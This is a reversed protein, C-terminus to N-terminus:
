PNQYVYVEMAGLGYKQYDADYFRINSYRGLLYELEMKLVGEGVGHIFVIRQIRNRIAFELKHRATDLQLNLIEHNSMGKSSRILQNVHLDVEMPPQQKDKSRAPRSKPKKVPKKEKLVEEFDFGEITAPDIDDDIKVLQDAPFSMIFGDETKISIEDGNIEQVIGSLEDDLLEVKDGPRFEM